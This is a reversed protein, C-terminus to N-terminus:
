QDVSFTSSGWFNGGIEIGLFRNDSVFCDHVMGTKGGVEIGVQSNGTVKLNELTGNEGVYFVGIAWGSVCGNRVTINTYDDDVEIGAATSDNTLSFGNLDLVVNNAQIEIGNLDSVGAINATLYYSGSNTIAFEAFVCGPTHTADVPTRPEIQSLTLMTPGPPGSPTLSGQALMPQISILLCGLTAALAVRSFLDTM